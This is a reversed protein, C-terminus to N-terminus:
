WSSGGKGLYNMMSSEKHTKSVQIVAKQIINILSNRGNCYRCAHTERIQKLREKAGAAHKRGAVKWKYITCIKPNISM